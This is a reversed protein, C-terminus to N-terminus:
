IYSYPMFYTDYSFIGPVYKIYIIYSTNNNRKGDSLAFFFNFFIYGLGNQRVFLRRFWFISYRRGCSRGLNANERVRKSTAKAEEINQSGALFTEKNGRTTHSLM